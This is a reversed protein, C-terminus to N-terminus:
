RTEQRARPRTRATARPTATAAPPPSSDDLNTILTALGDVLRRETERPMDRMAHAVLREAAPLLGRYTARGQATLWVEVVRGDDPAARREVLGDREMQDIVRSTVAQEAAALEAVEGARSGDYESLIALVQWRAVTIGHERLHQLWRRNFTGLARNLLYPVLHAALAGDDHAKEM